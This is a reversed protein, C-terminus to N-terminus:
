KYKWYNNYVKEGNKCGKSIYARCMGTEREIERISFWERVLNGDLDLQLITKRRKNPRKFQINNYTNNYRNDCWELNDVRNDTKDENIHNIQPLNNPNPIFAQAVLRHVNFPKRKGNMKLHIQKYGRGCVNQAMVKGKTLVNSGNSYTIVRDLSRVNGLNSVQYYGEYGMIDKWIEEM